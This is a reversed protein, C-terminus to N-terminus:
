SQAFLHQNPLLLSETQPQIVYAYLYYKVSYSLVQIMQFVQFVLTM